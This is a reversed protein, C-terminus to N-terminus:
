THEQEREKLHAMVADNSKTLKAWSKDTQESYMVFGDGELALRFTQKGNKLIVFDEFRITNTMQCGKSKDQKSELIM